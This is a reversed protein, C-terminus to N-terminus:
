NDQQSKKATINRRISFQEQMDFLAKIYSKLNESSQDRLISDEPIHRRTARKFGSTELSRMVEM